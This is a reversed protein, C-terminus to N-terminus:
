LVFPILMHTHRVYAPYQRPFHGTMLKEERRASYVFYPGGILLPIVWLVSQGIASGIMALMLGAYIPHRIYAYPGDMVLEPSTKESMPMGWNRGLCVRAWVALIVGSACLAAGLFGAILNKNIANRLASRPAHHARWFHLAVLVLVLVAIRIGIERRWSWGARVSLKAHTALLVWYAIFVLWSAAILLNYIAM